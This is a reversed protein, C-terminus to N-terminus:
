RQNDVLRARQFQPLLFPKSPNILRAVYLYYTDDTGLADGTVIIKGDPQLAGQYAEIDGPFRVIGTTGFTEDLTGNPEYRGIIVGYYESDGFSVIKGDPQPVISFWHTAFENQTTGLLSVGGQGFTDDIVGDTQLRLLMAISSSSSRSDGGIVIKGDRQILLSWAIDIYYRDRQFRVTGNDGFTDDLTGDANLRAAYLKWDGASIGAIVIKRDPQLAAAQFSTPYVSEDRYIGNDGFTPDLSGDACFRYVVAQEYTRGVVVIKGDLQVLITIGDREGWFTVVGDAGFSDDLTGDANYRLLLFDYPSPGNSTGTVLIKGDAQLAVANAYDNKNQSGNYIVFGVEGFTMDLAGDTNYRVVLIDNNIGNSTSGAVVIKGDSQVAVAQGVGPAPGINSGYVVSGEQGFASDLTGDSSYRRLLLDEDKDNSHSNAFVIKGDTQITLAQRFDTLAYAALALNHRVVMGGSGFSNDFIGDTGYRLLFSYYGPNPGAGWSYGAVVIKSDGQIAINTATMGPYDAPWHGTADFFYVVGDTGFSHDISGVTDFRLVVGVGLVVIKGDQQIGLGAISDCSQTAKYTSTGGTGFSLDPTGDQNYRLILVENCSSIATSTAVVIKGDAQIAVSYNPFAELRVIGEEGFTSDLRGASTYRSLSLKTGDWGVLVIKGDPQVAIEPTSKLHTLPAVGSIGFTTDLTGDSNFRFLQSMTLYRASLWYREM